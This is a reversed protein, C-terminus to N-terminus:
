EIHAGAGIVELVEAEVGDRDFGRFASVGVDFFLM